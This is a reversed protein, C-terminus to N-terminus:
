CEPRMIRPTYGCFWEPSDNLLWLLLINTTSTITRHRKAGTKSSLARLPARLNLIGDNPNENKSWNVMVVLIIELLMGRCEDCPIHRTSIWVKATRNTKSTMPPAPAMQPHESATPNRLAAFADKQLSTAHRTPVINKPRHSTCSRLKRRCDDDLLWWSSSCSWSSVLENHSFSVEFSWCDGVRLVSVFRFDPTSTTQSSLEFDSRTCFSYLFSLALMYGRLPNGRLSDVDAEHPVSGFSDRRAVLQKSFQAWVFM